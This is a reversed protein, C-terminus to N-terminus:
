LLLAASFLQAQQDHGNITSWRISVTSGIVASWDGDGVM